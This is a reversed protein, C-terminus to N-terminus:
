IIVILIIIMMSTAFALLIGCEVGEKIEEITTM